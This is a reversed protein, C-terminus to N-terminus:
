AVREPRNAAERRLLRDGACRAPGQDVQNPATADVHDRSRARRHRQLGTRGLPGEQPDNQGLEPARVRRNPRLKALSVVRHRRRHGPPAAFGPALQALQQHGGVVEIRCLAAEPVGLGEGGIVEAPGVIQPVEDPAGPPQGLGDGVELPGQPQARVVQRGQRPQPLDEDVGAPRVRGLRQQRPGAGEMGVRRRHEELEAPGGRRPPVVRARHGQELVRQPEVGGRRSDAIRQGHSPATEAVELPRPGVQLAPAAGARPAADGQGIGQHRRHVRRQPARLHMPVEPEVSARPVVPGLRHPLEPLRGPERGLQRDHPQVETEGQVARTVGAGREVLEPLRHAEVGPQGGRVERHSGEVLPAATVLLRDLTVRQGRDVVGVVGLRMEPQGVGEAPGVPELRRQHGVPPRELEFGAPPLRPEALRHGQYAQGAVRLGHLTEARRHIEVGPLRRERQGDRTEQGGRGVRPHPVARLRQRQRLRDLCREPGRGDGLRHGHGEGLQAPEALRDLPLSGRHRAGRRRPLGPGRLPHGGVQGEVAEAPGAPRRPAVVVGLM